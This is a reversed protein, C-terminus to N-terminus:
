QILWELDDAEGLWVFVEGYESAWYSGVVVELSHKRIKDLCQSRRILTHLVPIAFNAWETIHMYPMYNPNNNQDLCLLGLMM